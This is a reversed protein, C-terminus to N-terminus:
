SGITGETALRIPSPIRLGLFSNGVFDTSGSQALGRRHMEVATGYKEKRLSKM